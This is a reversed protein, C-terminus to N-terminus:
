LIYMVHYVLCELSYVDCSFDFISDDISGINFEYLFFECECLLVISKDSYM